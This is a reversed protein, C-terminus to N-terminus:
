ARDDGTDRRDKITRAPMGVAVHYSPIKGMVLAGTGIIADRGITAGDAVVVHAGLWVNEGIEIGTATRGQDPVPIDIRDYLHDGGALYTYGAVLTNIGLRVRSCSFVACNFSINTRDGIEIDGNKCSLVTNRGIFVGSGIRIGQNDTGKADLCCGDDIVVDNGLRIKHPHRLTVNVGFTVNRGAAGLLLPYLKSRLWLGVAGPIGSCLTIILEHKLLAGFGARGVVLTAYRQAKSRGPRFLEDQIVTIDPDGDHDTM